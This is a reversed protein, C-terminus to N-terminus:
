TAADIEAHGMDVGGLHIAIRLEHYRVRDRSLAVAQEQDRFHQRAVGRAAAGDGGALTRQLAQLGIIEIAIQQM